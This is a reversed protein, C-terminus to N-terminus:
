KYLEAIDFLEKLEFYYGSNLLEFFKSRANPALIKSTQPNIFFSEILRAFLEGPSEYYKKYKRIRASVKTRKRRLSNLRLYACFEKPMDPFDKEVNDLTLLEEKGLFPTILKINDHKLLFRANSKKIYREFEAFRESRKFNPYAHRILEEQTEIKHILELKQVKLGRLGANQDIALTLKKLEKEIIATDQTCFLKALSGKSRNLDPEIKSHIYHAFEHALVQLKREDDLNKSIDIRGRLYIGQNGRAKTHTNINIGLEKLFKIFRKADFQTTTTM